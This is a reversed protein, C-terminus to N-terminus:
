IRSAAVPGPSALRVRCLPSGMMFVSAMARRAARGRSVAQPRSGAGGASADALLLGASVIIPRRTCSAISLARASSAVSFMSRSLSCTEPFRRPMLMVVPSSSPPLGLASIVGPPSRRISPRLTSAVASCCASSSCYRRWTSPMAEAPMSIPAAPASRPTFAAVSASLPMKVPLASSMSCRTSASASFILAEAIFSHSWSGAM